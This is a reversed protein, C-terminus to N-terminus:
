QNNEWWYANEKTITEFNKFNDKELDYDKNFMRVGLISNKSLIYKKLFAKINKYTVKNCNEIYGFYYDTTASAWWFSLNEIFNSPTEMNILRKDALKKKALEYDEKTFYNPDEVMQKIENLVAEKLKLVREATNQGNLIQIYTAFDIQGGDRQTYYYMWIYDKSYIGPISGFIHNLFKGNPDELLTGWVDAAYTAEPDVTVDPGRFTLYVYAFKQYFTDDPYVYFEDKEIYPHPNEAIQPNEEGKSWDGFYKEAIKKVQEPNVDGGVFLAANNPVYYKEQIQKLIDVTANKINSEPGSIDKRWPYKYFLSYIIKSSFINAQDNHYGRIENIVVDKEAELENENFLPYKVANAWFEIGKDLKSSPVTIYYTVYERSTGGNWTSIGLQKMAAAFETQNKYVKNGKFLMHEYLHFLGATEPTQAISGCRFTIQIRALPVIHNEIVFIELGNDLVYHTLGPIASSNGAVGFALLILIILGSIVWLLKKSM